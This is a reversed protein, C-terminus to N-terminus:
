GLREESRAILIVLSSPVVGPQPDVLMPAESHGGGHVSASAAPMAKKARWEQFKGWRNSKRGTVPAGGGSPPPPPKPLSKAKKDCWFCSTHAVDHHWSCSRCQWSKPKAM